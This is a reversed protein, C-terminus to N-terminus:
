FPVDASSFTEMEVMEGAAAAREYSREASALVVDQLDRERERESRTDIGLLANVPCVRTIASDLLLAGAIMTALGRPDGAYGGLRTYGLAMVAPAIIFRGIRDIRGVNEKM